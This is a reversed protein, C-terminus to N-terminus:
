SQARHKRWYRAAGDASMGSPSATMLAAVEADSLGDNTAQAQEWARFSRRIEEADSEQPLTAAMWSELADLKRAVTELHWAADPYRGFHTLAVSTFKGAAQLAQLRGLTARWTELHFEPPPTPLRMHRSSEPLRVGGIDGTFATDECVYVFHHNAHGPTDLVEIQLGGVEVCDGDSHTVLKEAPIPLIKGWLTDMQDGYIRTASAILKEPNCLHPAGFPHVHVRAGQQAWWGSSGAHDFHIHTIFVDTVDGSTLGCAALAAEVAPLTSSPGCEILVAGHSHPVLYAAITSARGTFQLDITSISM